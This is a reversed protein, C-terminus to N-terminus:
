LFTNFYTRIKTLNYQLCFLAGVILLYEKSTWYGDEGGCDFDQEEPSYPIPELNMIRKYGESHIFTGFQQTRTQEVRKYKNTGDKKVNSNSNCIKIGVAFWIAILSFIVLWSVISM